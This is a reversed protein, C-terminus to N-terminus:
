SFIGNVTQHGGFRAKIVLVAINAVIPIASRATSIYRLAPYTLASYEHCERGRTNWGCVARFRFGLGQDRFRSGEVRFRLFRQPDRPLGVIGLM